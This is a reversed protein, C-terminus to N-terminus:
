KGVFKNGSLYYSAITALTIGVADAYLDQVDLSRTPFFYQSLEEIVVFLSVCITGIYLSVSRMRVIRFKMTINSGLALLGFLLAHGAKDGYPIVKVLEFFISSQGTNAM